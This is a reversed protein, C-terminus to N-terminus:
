PSSNPGLINGEFFQPLSTVNKLHRSYRTEKYKASQASIKGLFAGNFPWFWLIALLEAVIDIQLRFIPLFM